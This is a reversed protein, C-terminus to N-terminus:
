EGTWARGADSPHGDDDHQRGQAPEEERRLRASQRPPPRWRSMSAGTSKSRTSRLRRTGHRAAETRGVLARFGSSTPGAKAGMRVRLAAAARRRMVGCRDCRDCRVCRFAGAAGSCRVAGCRVQRVAACRDCGCRTCRDCGACRDCGCGTCRGCRVQRVQVWHVQRVRACAGTAGPSDPEQDRVRADFGSVGLREVVHVKAIPNLQPLFAVADGPRPRLHISFPLAIGARLWVGISSQPCGGRRDADLEAEGLAARDRVLVPVNTNSTPASPVSRPCNALVDALELPLEIARRTM